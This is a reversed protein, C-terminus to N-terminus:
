STEFRVGINASKRSIGNNLAVLSLDLNATISTLDFLYDGHSLLFSVGDENLNSAFEHSDDCGVREDLDEVDGTTLEFLHSHSTLKFHDSALLKSFDFINAEIGISLFEDNQSILFGEINSDGIRFEIDVIDIHIFKHLALDRLVTDGDFSVPILM